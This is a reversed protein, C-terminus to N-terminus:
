KWEKKWMDWEELTIKEPSPRKWPQGKKKDIDRKDIMEMGWIGKKVDRM